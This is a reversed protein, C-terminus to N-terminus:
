VTGNMAEILDRNAIENLQKPTDIVIDQEQNIGSWDACKRLCTPCPVYYNANVERGIYMRGYCKKCSSSPKKLLPICHKDVSNIEDSAISFIDGTLLSFFLKSDSM